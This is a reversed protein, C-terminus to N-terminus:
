GKTDWRALVFGRPNGARGGDIHDDLGAFRLNKGILGSKISLM